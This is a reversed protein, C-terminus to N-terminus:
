KQLKFLLTPEEIWCVRSDQVVELCRCKGMFLSMIIIRCSNDRM